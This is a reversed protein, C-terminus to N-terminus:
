RIYNRWSHIASNGGIINTWTQLSIKAIPLIKRVKGVSVPLMHTYGIILVVAETKLALNSKVNFLFHGMTPGVNLACQRDVVIELKFKHNELTQAARSTSIQTLIIARQYNNIKYEVM